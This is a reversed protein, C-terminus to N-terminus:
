LLPTEEEECRDSLESETQEAPDEPVPNARVVVPVPGPDMQIEPLM